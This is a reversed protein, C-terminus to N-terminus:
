NKPWQIPKRGTLVLRLDEITMAPSVTHLIAHCNPCVPRLDNIPDVEYQAGVKALERLHHVHIVGEGAQGYFDAMKFGCAACTVGHHEICAARADRSREYANVLVTKVAGETYKHSSPVEEPIPVTDHYEVVGDALKLLDQFESESLKHGYQRVTISLQSLTVPQNYLYSTNVIYVFRVNPYAARDAENPKVKEKIEFHGFALGDRSLVIVDANKGQTYRYRGKEKAFIDGKLYKTLDGPMPFGLESKDPNGYIWISRELPHDPQTRM